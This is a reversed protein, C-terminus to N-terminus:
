SCGDAGAGTWCAWAARDADHAMSVFNYASRKFLVGRRAGEVAVTAGVAEDAVLSLVNRAARRSRAVRRPHRRPWGRLGDMLWAGSAVSSSPCGRAGVRGAYGPGGRALRVRHRADVLDLHARGRGHSRARGGVAALPFGNAIAKGMVVLDPRVAFRECAGGLALRGVTKIEDAILVAGTRETEERLVALWRSRTALIVPEFVVAALTDGARRIMERTREPDNFPLEAYLGRTGAPM